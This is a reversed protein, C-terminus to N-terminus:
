CYQMCFKNCPEELTSSTCGEGVGATQLMEGQLMIIFTYIQTHLEQSPEFWIQCVAAGHHPFSCANSAQHDPLHHKVIELRISTWLPNAWEVFHAHNSVASANVDQEVKVYLKTIIGQSICDKEETTPGLPLPLDFTMSAMSKTNPRRAFCTCCSKNFPKVPLMCPMSCPMCLSQVCDPWRCSHVNTRLRLRCSSCVLSQCYSVCQYHSAACTTQLQAEVLHRLEDM